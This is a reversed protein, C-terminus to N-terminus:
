SPKDGTPAPATRLQGFLQLLYRLLALSAIGIAFLHAEPYGGDHEFTSVAAYVLILVVLWQGLRRRCLRHRTALLYGGLASLMGISCGVLVDVPWHAGVMVRSGAALLMLGFLLHRMSRSPAILILLACIIGTTTSHGSPFSGAHLLDGIQNFQEPPIVAAPREISLTRKFGQVILTAPIAAILTAALLQPHRFVFLLMLALAVRTDGLLTLAAWATDPLADGALNLPLFAAHYGFGLTLILALSLLLVVSALIDTVAPRPVQQPWDSGVARLRLLESIAPM